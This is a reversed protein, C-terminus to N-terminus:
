EGRVAELIRWPDVLEDSAAADSLVGCVAELRARLTEVEEVLELSESVVEGFGVAMDSADHYAGSDHGELRAKIEELRGERM